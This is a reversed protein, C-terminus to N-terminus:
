KAEPKVAPQAGAPNTSTPEAPKAAPPVPKPAPPVPKPAPPPPPVPKPKVTETGSGAPSSPNPTQGGNGKPDASADGVAPEPASAVPLERLKTGLMGSAEVQAADGVFTDGRKYGSLGGIVEYRKKM